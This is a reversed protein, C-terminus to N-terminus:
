TSDLPSLSIYKKLITKCFYAKQIAVRYVLKTFVRGSETDFRTEGRLATTQGTTKWVVLGVFQELDWNLWSGVRSLLALSQIEVVIKMKDSYKVWKFCVNLGEKQKSELSSLASSLESSLSSLTSSSSDDKSSSSPLVDLYFNEKYIECVDETLPASDPLNQATNQDLRSLLLFFFLFKKLRVRFQM